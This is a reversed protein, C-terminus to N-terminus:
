NVKLGTVSNNWNFAKRKAERVYKYDFIKIIRKAMKLANSINEKFLEKQNTQTGNSTQKVCPFDQYAGLRCSRIIHHVLSASILAYVYATERTALFFAKSQDVQPKTLKSKFKEM